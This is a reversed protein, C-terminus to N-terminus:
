AEGKDAAPKTAEHVQKIFKIYRKYEAIETESFNEKAAQKEGGKGLWGNISLSKCGIDVRNEGWYSVPFKTGTIYITVPSEDDGISARFGITAGSGITAGNGISTGGGVFADGGVSAGDGIIAGEGIIAGNGIIAGTHISAGRGITAGIGISARYGITAGRGITAGNGIEIGREKLAETDTLEFEGWGEGQVWLYIV